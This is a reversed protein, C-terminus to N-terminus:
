EISMCPYFYLDGYPAINNTTVTDGSRVPFLGQSHAVPKNNVFFRHADAGGGCKNMAFIWGTASAHYVYIKDTYIFSIIRGKGYDPFRHIYTSLKTIANQVFETTALQTTSTGKQATPATPIGSFEPSFARFNYFVGGDNIKVLLLWSESDDLATRNNNKLSKYIYIENNLVYLVVSNINYSITQSYILPTINALSTIFQKSNSGNELTGNPTTGSHQLVQYLSYYLDQMHEAVIETGDNSGSSTENKFAGYPLDGSAAQSKEYSELKRM